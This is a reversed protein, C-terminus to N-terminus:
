GTENFVVFISMVDFRSNDLERAFIFNSSKLCSRYHSFNTIPLINKVVLAHLVLKCVDMKFICSGLIKFVKVVFGFIFVHKHISIIQHWSYMLKYDIARETSSSKTFCYHNVDVCFILKWFEWCLEFNFSWLQYHVHPSFSLSFVM